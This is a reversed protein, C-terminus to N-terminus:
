RSWEAPYFPKIGPARDQTSGVPDVLVDITQGALLPVIQRMGAVVREQPLDTVVVLLYGQLGDPRRMWALTAQQVGDLSDLHETLAALVEGPVEQPASVHYTEGADMERVATGEPVGRLLDSMETVPYPKALASMPNLTTGTNHAVSTTWFEECPLEAVRVETIGLHSLALEMPAASTFFAVMPNGDADSLALPAFGDSEDQGPVLVTSKLLARTFRARPRPEGPHEIADALLREVDTLEQEVHQEM